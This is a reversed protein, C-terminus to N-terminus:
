TGSIGLALGYGLIENLRCNPIPPSGFLAIRLCLCGQASEIVNSQSHWLIEGFRQYPISFGGLLVVRISLRAESREIGLGMIIGM